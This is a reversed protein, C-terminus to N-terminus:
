AVGTYMKREERYIELGRGQGIMIVCVSIDKSEITKFHFIMNYMVGESPWAKSWSGACLKEKM